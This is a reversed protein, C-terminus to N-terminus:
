LAPAFLTAYNSEYMPQTVGAAAMFINLRDRLLAYEVAVADYEDQIRRRETEVDRYDSDDKVRVVLAAERQEANSYAPKGDGRQESHVDLLLQARRAILIDRVDNALKELNRRRQNFLAVHEALAYLARQDTESIRSGAVADPAPTTSVSAAGPSTPSTASTPSEDVFQVM